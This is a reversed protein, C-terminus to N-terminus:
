DYDVWIGASVKSHRKGECKPNACCNSLPGCVWSWGESGEASATDNVSSHARIAVSPVLLLCISIWRPSMRM